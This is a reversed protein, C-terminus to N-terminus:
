KEEKYVDVRELCYVKDLNLQNVLNEASNFKKEDRIRELFQIEFKEDYLDEVENDFFHIEMVFDKEDFTPRTGLNAMGYLWKGDVMGRALYVGQYPLMQTDLTPIFNATPFRLEHGRGSGHVVKVDFGYARGLDYSARRVNGSAILNRIRSSSYIEGEDGIESIIEVTYGYQSSETKLFKGDGERNHGFHHDYGVMIRSPNFKNIIVENLFASASNTSFDKDFPIVLTTNVGMIELLTLKHDIDMLLDFKADDRLIEKPHPDFTILVSPAELIRATTVVRRIVEQHGRHLGDFSGITLVADNMEPIDDLHYFVDM